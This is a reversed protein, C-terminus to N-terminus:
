VNSSNYLILTDQPQEKLNYKVRLTSQKNIFTAVSSARGYLASIRSSSLINM